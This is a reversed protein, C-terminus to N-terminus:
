VCANVCECVCEKAREREKERVCVFSLSLPHSFSLHESPRVRRREFRPEILIRKRKSKSAEFESRLVHEYVIKESESKTM